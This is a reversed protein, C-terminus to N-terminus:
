AHRAKELKSASLVFDGLDVLELLEVDRQFLHCHECMVVDEEKGGSWTFTYEEWQHDCTKMGGLIRSVECIVAAPDAKRGDPFKAFYADWDQRTHVFRNLTMKAYTAQWTLERASENLSQTRHMELINLVSSMRGM